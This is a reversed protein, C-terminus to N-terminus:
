EAAFYGVVDGIVDVTGLNNYITIADHPAVAVVALNAVTQGPSFNLSSSTPRPPSPPYVTLYSASSGNTVTANFVIAAAGAPVGVSPGVGVLRSEDATWASPTGIASRSDLFRQPGALPHFLSGGDTDYYGVVDAVVNTSGVANFFSVSGGAGIKVTVLNSTVSGAVFNATSTNPRPEGTPWLQIFSDNTSDTSTVNLVLSDATAPVEGGTVVLNRVNVDGQRLRGSWGTGVRSDLVRNPTIGTFLEGEDQRYYGVIDVVVETAGVATALTITGGTGVRVTALNAITQGFGFNLNSANPQPTGTPYATLFSEANSDTVAINAVVATVDSPISEIGAVVLTRPIGAELPGDWGGTAMRSDLVRTPTIGHFSSGVTRYTFTSAPGAVSTGQATTVLVDVAGASGPPVVAVIATSGITTFTTAPEGGFTVESTGTLNMGSILVQYGGTTVGEAPSISSIVPLTASYTFTAGPDAPSTGGPTTVAITADGSAHAPTKLTVKTDSIVNFMTAPTGGVSVASAFTFGTGTVTVTTGGIV